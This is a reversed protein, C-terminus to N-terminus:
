ERAPVHFKWPVPNIPVDVAQGADIRRAYENWHLDPLPPRALRDHMFVANIGLLVTLVLAPAQAIRPAMRMAALAVLWWFYVKFPVFYRDSALLPLMAQVEGASKYLAALLQFAIFLTLAVLFAKQRADSGSLARWLLAAFLAAFLSAPMIAAGFTHSQMSTLFLWCQEADLTGGVTQLRAANVMTVAQAAACAALVYWEPPIRKVDRIAASMGGRLRLGIWVPAAAAVGFLSFPGTLGVCAAAVIRLSPPVGSGGVFLGVLMAAVYFQTIWQVYAISGWGEGNGPALVLPALALLFGLGLRGLSRLSALAVAGVLVAAIGYVLPAYVAPLATALWAVLRPIFHLYGSYPSFFQPIATGQQGAYFIVGDEAWFQALLLSDPAKLAMVLAGLAFALLFPFDAPRSRASPEIELEDRLAKAGVGRGVGGGGRSTAPYAREARPSKSKRQRADQDPAGPSRHPM